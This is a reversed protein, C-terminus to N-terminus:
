MMLFRFSITIPSIPLLFFTIAPINIWQPLLTFLLIPKKVSSQLAGAPGARSVTPTVCPLAQGCRLPKVCTGTLAPQCWVLVDQSAPGLVKRRFGM